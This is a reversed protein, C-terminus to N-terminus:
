VGGLLLWCDRHGAQGSVRWTDRSTGILSLEEKLAAAAKKEALLQGHLDAVDAQLAAIRELLQQRGAEADQAAIRGAKETSLAATAEQLAAKTEALQRKCDM